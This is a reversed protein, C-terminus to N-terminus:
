PHANFAPGSPNELIGEPEDGGHYFMCICINCCNDCWPPDAYEIVQRPMVVKPQYYQIRRAEERFENLGFSYVYNM